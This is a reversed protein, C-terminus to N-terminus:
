NIVDPNSGEMEFGGKNRGLLSPLAAAWRGQWLWVRQVARSGGAVSM